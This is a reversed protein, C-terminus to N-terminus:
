SHIEKCRLYTADRQQLGFIAADVIDEMSDGEIEFYGEHTSDVLQMSYYIRYLYKM